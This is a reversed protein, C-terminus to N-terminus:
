KILYNSFLNKNEFPSIQFKEKGIFVEYNLNPDTKAYTIAIKSALLKDKKSANKSILSYAGINPSININQFKDNKLFKLIENEKEDRGIIMKAGDELRLHRGYRLMSIDIVELKEKHLNMDKIKNSFNELTLLCGGAPSAYDTINFKDVLEMQRQRSRGNIDLLLDRNIWGMMEPKTPSLLKACLPRLILKEEDGSLKVVSNMAEKRQSMPRQGLVEGSIIFNAEFKDLLSLATKFMYAHCDICPNFQKGYGFKPSFLVDKLYMKKIDVVEFDAGVSMARNKLLEFHENTAGFGNDMYLATVKINQLTILKIALMSDLGGSFLALAKM